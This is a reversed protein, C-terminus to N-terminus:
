PSTQDLTPDTYTEDIHRKAWAIAAAESEERTPWIGPLQHTDVPGMMDRGSVISVASYFGGTTEETGVYLIWELHYATAHTLM